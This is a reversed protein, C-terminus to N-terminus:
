GRGGDVLKQAMEEFSSKPRAGTIQEVVTGGSFALAISRKDLVALARSVNIGKGGADRRSSIIKGISGGKLGNVELSLDLSPNPTLTYIMQTTAQQEDSTKKNPM